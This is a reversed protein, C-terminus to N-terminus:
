VWLLFVKMKSVWYFFVGNLVVQFLLPLVTIFATFLLFVLSSTHFSQVPKKGSSKPLVNADKRVSEFRLNLRRLNSQAIVSRNYGLPLSSNQKRRSACDVSFIFCAWFL